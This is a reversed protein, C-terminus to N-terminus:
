ERRSRWGACDIVELGGAANLTHTADAQWAPLPALRTMLTQQYREIDLVDVRCLALQSGYGGICVQAPRMLAGQRSFMMGAPRASAADILVPNAAHPSWPGMLQEAHFLGLMDWSSSGEEALSAFLFLCGDRELLTADSASVGDILVTELRWELPFDIARYIEVTRNACSEPIMFIAGDREFVMPYSLHYPQELVIRRPGAMGDPGITFVSIVGKGTSYPYEECFVHAVGGHWFVFPDAYYRRADDPLFSYPADPWALRSAVEDGAAFRWGIRWHHQHASLRTLRAAIKAKLGNLVFASARLPGPMRRRSVASGTTEAADLRSASLRLATKLILDGMRWLVSDLARTFVQPDALAPLATAVDRAGGDEPCRLALGLQPARGALLAEMAAAEGPAGDYLPILTRVAVPSALAEGDFDLVLEPAVESLGPLPPPVAPETVGYLLKELAFLLTLGTGIGDDRPAARRALTVQHGKAELRQALGARWQRPGSAGSSFEIRM